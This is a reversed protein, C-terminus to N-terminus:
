PSMSDGTTLGGGRDVLLTSDHAKTNLVVDLREVRMTLEGGRADLGALGHLLERAAIADVTGGVVGGAEGDRLLHAALDTTEGLRLAVRLVADRQDLRRLARQGLHVRHELAHTVQAHLVLVAREAVSSLSAIRASAVCSASSIVSMRSLVCNLPVSRSFPVGAVTSTGPRRWRSALGDRRGRGVDVGTGAHGLGRGHGVDDVVGDEGRQRDGVDVRRDLLDGSRTGVEARHLVAELVTQVLRAM